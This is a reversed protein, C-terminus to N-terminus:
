SGEKKRLLIISVLEQNPLDKLTLDKPIKLRMTIITLTILRM